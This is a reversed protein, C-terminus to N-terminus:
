CERQYTSIKKKKKKNERERERERYIYINSAHTAIAMALGLPEELSKCSIIFTIHCHRYYMSWSTELEKGHDIPGVMIIPLDM